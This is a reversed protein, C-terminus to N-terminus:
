LCNDKIQEILLKRDSCSSCLNLARLKMDVAIRQNDLICLILDHMDRYKFLSVSKDCCFESNDTCPKFTEPNNNTFHAKKYADISKNIQSLHQSCILIENDFSTRIVKSDKKKMIITGGINM